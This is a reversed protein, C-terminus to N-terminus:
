PEEPAGEVAEEPAPVILVPCPAHHVCAQGVSGLLLGSFGGHGRSGVVLLDAGRATDVLAKAAHGRVVQSRVPLDPPVEELAQDLRAKAEAAVDEEPFPPVPPVMSPYAYYWEPSRWATVAELVGRRYRAERVAVGLAALSGPSGDVGVVVRPLDSGPGTTDKDPGATTTM